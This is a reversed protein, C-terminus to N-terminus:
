NVYLHLGYISQFSLLFKPGNELFGFFKIVDLNVKNVKFHTM